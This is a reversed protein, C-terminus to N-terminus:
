SLNGPQLGVLPKPIGVPARMAIEELNIRRVMDLTNEDGHVIEEVYSRPIWDLIDMKRALSKETKYFQLDNNKVYSYINLGLM